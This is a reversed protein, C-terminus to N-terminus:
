YYQQDQTMTVRVQRQALFHVFTGGILLAPNERNHYHIRQVNTGGIAESSHQPRSPFLEQVNTGGIFQCYQQTYNAHRM